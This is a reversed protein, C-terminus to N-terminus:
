RYATARVEQNASERLDDETTRGFIAKTRVWSKEGVNPDENNNGFALEKAPTGGSLNVLGLTKRPM